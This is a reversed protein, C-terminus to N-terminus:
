ELKVGFTTILNINIIGFNHNIQTIYKTLLTIIYFLYLQLLIYQINNLLDGNQFLTLRLCTLCYHTVSVANCKYACKMINLRVYDIM